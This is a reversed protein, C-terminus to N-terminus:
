DHCNEPNPFEPDVRKGGVKAPLHKAHGNKWGWAQECWHRQSVLGKRVKRDVLKTVLITLLLPLWLQGETIRTTKLYLPFLWGRSHDPAIVSQVETSKHMLSIQTHSPAMLYINYIIVFDLVELCAERDPSPM